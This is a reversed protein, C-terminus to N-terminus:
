KEKRQVTITYSCGIPGELFYSVTQPEATNNTIEYRNGVRRAIAHKLGEALPHSASLFPAFQVQNQPAFFGLRVSM